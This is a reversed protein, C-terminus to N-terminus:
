EFKFYRPNMTRGFGFRKNFRRNFYVLSKFDRRLFITDNDIHRNGQFEKNTSVDVILGHSYRSVTYLKSTFNLPLSTLRISDVPGDYYLTDSLLSYSNGNIFCLISGGEDKSRIPLSRRNLEVLKSGSSGNEGFIKRQYHWIENLESSDFHFIFVLKKSVGVSDTIERIKLDVNRNDHDSNLLYTYPEIKRINGFSFVNGPAWDDVTVAYRLSVTDVMLERSGYPPSGVYFIMHAEVFKMFAIWFWIM